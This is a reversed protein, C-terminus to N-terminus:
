VFTHDCATFIGNQVVLGYAYGRIIISHRNDLGFKFKFKTFFFSNYMLNRLSKKKKEEM